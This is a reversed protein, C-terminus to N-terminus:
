TELQPHGPDPAVAALRVPGPNRRDQSQSHEGVARPRRHGELRSSLVPNAAPIDAIRQCTASRYEHLGFPPTSGSGPSSACPAATRDAVHRVLSPRGEGPRGLNRGFRGADGEHDPRRWDHRECGLKAHLINRRPLPRRGPGTRRRGRQRHHHDRADRGSHASATRRPELRFNVIQATPFRRHMETRQKLSAVPASPGPAAAAPCIPLRLARYRRSLPGARTSERHRPAAATLSGGECRQLHELGCTRCAVRCYKM